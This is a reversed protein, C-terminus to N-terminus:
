QVSLNLQDHFSDPTQVAIPLEGSVTLTAPVVFNIQYLGPYVPNLGAYLIQTSPVGSVYVAVQALANDAAPPNPAGGDAVPNQVAGLGTLYMTLTEGRTAPNAPTVLMGTSAHVIAGDGTGTLDSSFIGPSTASYPVTVSNSKQQGSTVTITVATSGSPIAYPVLVNLQDPSVLYVPAPLGGISVSVGGLSDPYPPTATTVANSFGSGYIAIFEGPSIPNGVPANGAANVVGQPNIFVGSGSLAPLTEGFVIEFGTPDLISGINAGIFATACLAIKAPGASGTNDASFTYVESATVNIPTPSASMHLRETQILSSNKAIVTESGAYSGSSGASDVRVGGIWSPPLTAVKSTAQVAILIDHAGPTAALMVNGTASLFTTRQSGSMMLGAGSFGPPVPLSITGSGDANVTYTGASASQNVAAGDSYNAAHGKVTLSTVSGAGDLAFQAVSDRVQSTSAGTLEFDAANWTLAVGATNVPSVPAPIAVFIDFTNGSIETSSGIVAEAGFRANLEASTKQPNTLTLTGSSNMSYTGNASFSGPNGTGITQQGSFLYNGKGDFTIAGLISRADTVTNSADTTFQLHRAFYKGALSANTLVQAFGAHVILVGLFVTRALVFAM